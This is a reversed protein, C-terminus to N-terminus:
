SMMRFKSRWEAKLIWNNFSALSDSKSSSSSIESILSFKITRFIFSTLQSSLNLVVASISFHSFDSFNMQLASILLYEYLPLSLGHFPFHDRVDM